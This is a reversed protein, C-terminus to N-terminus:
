AAIGAVAKITLRAGNQDLDIAPSTLAYVAGSWMDIARWDAGIRGTECDRYISIDVPQQGALRAATIAEIGLSPRVEAWRCFQGVFEGEQNGMGDSETLRAEFRLKTKMRGPNM